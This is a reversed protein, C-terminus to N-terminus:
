SRAALGGRGGYQFENVNRDGCNPCNLLFSM